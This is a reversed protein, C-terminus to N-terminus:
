SPSVQHRQTAIEFNTGSRSPSRFGGREGASFNQGLYIAEEEDILGERNTVVVAAGANGFFAGDTYFDLDVTKVAKGKAFSDNIVSFHRNWVMTTPIEDTEQEM